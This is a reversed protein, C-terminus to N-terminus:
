IFSSTSNCLLTIILPFLLRTLYLVLLHHIFLPMFIHLFMLYITHMLLLFPIIPFHIFFLIRVQLFSERKHILFINKWLLVKSEGVCELRFGPVQHSNPLFTKKTFAWGFKVRVPFSDWWIRVSNGGNLGSESLDTPFSIRGPDM